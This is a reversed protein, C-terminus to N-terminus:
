EQIYVCISVSAILLGVFLIMDDGIKNSVWGSVFFAPIETACGLLITLGFITQSAGPLSKAYWFVFAYKVGLLMGSILVIFLFLMIQSNSFLKKAGSLISPKNLPPIKLWHSIISSLIGFVTAGIFCALFNTGPEGKSSTVDVLLGMVFGVLGFGVSGWLRQNGYKHMRGEGLMNMVTADILTQGPSFASAYFITLGLMLAFTSGYVEYENTTDTEQCQITGNQSDVNSLVNNTSVNYNFQLTFRREATNTCNLYDGQVVCDISFNQNNSYCLAKKRLVCCKLVDSANEVPHVFYMPITFAVSAMICVVLTLKHTSFKDAIAGIIPPAVLTFAKEFSQIIGNQSPSLGLQKQYLVKYPIFCSMGLFLIKTTYNEEFM